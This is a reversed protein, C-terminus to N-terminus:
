HLEERVIRFGVRISPTKFDVYDLGPQYEGRESARLVQVVGTLGDAEVMEDINNELDYLYWSSPQRQKVQRPLYPHICSSDGRICERTSYAPKSGIGAAFAWEAVTALRYGTCGAIPGGTSSSHYCLTLRMQGARVRVDNEVETLSNIYTISDAPTVCTVPMELTGPGIPTPCETWETRRADAVHPAMARMVRYFNGQTIPHEAVFLHSNKPLHIMAPRLPGDPIKLYIAHTRTRHHLSWLPLALGAVILLLGLASVCAGPLMITSSITKAIEHEKM